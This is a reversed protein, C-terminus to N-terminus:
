RQPRVTAYGANSIDRADTRTTRRAHCIVGSCGCLVPLYQSSVSATTVTEGSDNFEASSSQPYSDRAAAGQAASTLLTHKPVTIYDVGCWPGIPIMGASRSQEVLARIDTPLVVYYNAQAVPRLTRGASLSFSTLTLVLSPVTRSIILKQTQSGPARNSIRISTECVRCALQTGQLEM